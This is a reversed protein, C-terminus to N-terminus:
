TAGKGALWKVLRESMADFLKIVGPTAREVITSITWWDASQKVKKSQTQDGIVFPAYYLRTGIRGEVGKSSTKITKVDPKGSLGITRGLTLTRAYTSNPNQPPYAPISGQVHLLAQNMTGRMEEKLKDPYKAMRNFLDPPNIRIEIRTPM